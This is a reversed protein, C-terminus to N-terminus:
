SGRRRRTTRRRPPAARPSPRGRPRGGVALDGLVVAGPVAHLLRDGVRGGDGEEGRVAEDREVDGVEEPRPLEGGVLDVGEEVLRGVRAEAARGAGGGLRADEVAERALGAGERAVGAGEDLAVRGLGGALEGAADPPAVAGGLERLEEGEGDVVALGGLGGEPAEEVVDRAGLAPSM